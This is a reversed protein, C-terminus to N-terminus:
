CEIERLMPVSLRATVPMTNGDKHPLCNSRCSCLLPHALYLLDGLHLGWTGLLPCHYISGEGWPSMEEGLIDNNPGGSREEKANVDLGPQIETGPEFFCCFWILSM